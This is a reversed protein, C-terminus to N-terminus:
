NVMNRSSYVRPLTVLVPLDLIDEIEGENLSPNLHNREFFLSAAIACVLGLMAGFPLFLSGKPSVHKVNLTPEQAIVIDSIGRQDMISMAKAEGRRQSYIGLEQRAIDVDRQLQDAMVEASNLEKMTAENASRKEKLSALRAVSGALDAQARVLDIKLGEFVPNSTMASQTRGVSMSKLSERVRKLQNDIRTVEPHIASYTSVLREREAELQFVLHKSDEFAKSEVNSTPMALQRDTSAM